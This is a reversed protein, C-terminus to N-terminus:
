IEPTTETLFDNLLYDQLTKLTHPAKQGVPAGDVELTQEPACKEEPRAATRGDIRVRGQRVLEKVQSRSWQGTSALLKDLREM